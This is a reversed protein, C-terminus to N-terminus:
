FSFTLTFEPYTTSCYKYVSTDCDLQREHVVGAGAYVRGGLPVYAGARAGVSDLPTEDSYFVRRYFGGVYPFIGGCNTFVYKLGPTVKYIEPTNGLWAEGDLGLELGKLLYYGYGGSLVAYSGNSASGWGAGISLRSRGRSVWGSLGLANSTGGQGYLGGGSQTASAASEEARGLSSLCFLLAVLSASSFLRRRSLEM